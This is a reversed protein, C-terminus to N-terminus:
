LFSFGDAITNMTLVIILANFFFSFSTHWVVTWRMRSTAVSVDSAAFSTGNTYAFYVFDILRPHETGPFRLPREEIRQLYHSHYIRAYGWHFMAWSVLMAWVAVLEHLQSEEDPANRSLIVTTSAALGVLSSSFTVATSFWRLLPMASVRQFLPDDRDNLRVDVNLWIVAGALHLTAIACWLLLRASENMAGDDTLLYDLGLALLLMQVLVGFGEVIFTLTARTRDGRGPTRATRRRQLRTEATGDDPEGAKAEM